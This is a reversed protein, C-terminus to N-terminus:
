NVLNIHYIKLRYETENIFKDITRAIWDMKIEITKYFTRKSQEGGKINVRSKPTKEKGMNVQFHAKM